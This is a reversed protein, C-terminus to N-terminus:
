EGKKIYDIKNDVVKKFAASPEGVGASQSCLIECPKEIPCKSCVLGICTYKNDRIKMLFELKTM